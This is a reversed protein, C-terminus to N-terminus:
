AAQTRYQYPSLNNLKKQFRQHNYFHIYKCVAEQVAEATKFSYLYMCETKFHSFFSEMCANDWCNGKRSMSAKMQYKKLLKHYLRSTYQFGQDSHLLVGKVNRKKKAKKLTDIVLKLDNRRSIQYAVIENNYLDKMVSMYLKQGNFMLYTIDTVWKENPKSATFDRNLHNDSTVHTEKKGYYPKKKRIVARIGLENMLRQIRKHNIHLGYMKELWVQIRRYGYIGRLKQHCEMIKKKVSEDEIQKESPSKQKRLWKYYGSKSVGAVQCLLQLSYTGASMEKVM